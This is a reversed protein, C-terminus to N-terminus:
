IFLKSLLISLRMLLVDMYFPCFLFKSYSYLISWNKGKLGTGFQVEINFSVVSNSLFFSETPKAWHFFLATNIMMFTYLFWFPFHRQFSIDIEWRSTIKLYVKFLATTTLHAETLLEINQLKDRSCFNSPLLNVNKHVILNTMSKKKAQYTIGDCCPPVFLLVVCLGSLLSFITPRCDWKQPNM